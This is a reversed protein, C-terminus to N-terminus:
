VQYPIVPDFRRGEGQLPAARVLQALGGISSPHIIPTSGVSYPIVIRPVVM